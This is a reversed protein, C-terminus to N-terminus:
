FCENNLQDFFFVRSFNKISFIFYQFITYIIKTLEDRPFRASSDTM